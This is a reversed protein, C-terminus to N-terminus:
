SLSLDLVLPSDGKPVDFNVAFEGLEGLDLFAKYRGHFGRFPFQGYDGTRGHLRTTWEERLSILRKGAANVRKDSDVLHGNKRSIAGEWFGWLMIGDVSPHAFCERLMVKLLLFTVNIYNPVCFLM